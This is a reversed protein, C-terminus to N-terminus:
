RVISLVEFGEVADKGHVVRLHEYTFNTIEEDSCGRLYLHTTGIDLHDTAYVVLVIDLAELTEM